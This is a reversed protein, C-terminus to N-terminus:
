NGLRGIELIKELAQELDAVIDATDEIGIAFRVLNDKIGISLREATSLEYYSMYAPQEILSEVGGLSPAIYPITMADIFRATTDAPEEGPIPAIEFSVVGGYGDMQERAIQHDPHSALGPYWVREVRPHNELFDAVTQASHNQQKVRLALTKLGREVLWAAHPDAVGGLMGQSQRLAHLLGADGVVVGAMVDNHGSLYKTGSHIVLNIGYALPRQNVPTAFTSDIITKVRKHQKAVAALRELDAVRLYPNTPSESIILRTNPQVAAELAAYDGMAVQTTEIGLRALFSNCFQRTKRYCDDTMVIHSGTPLISLIVNTVATMGTPFLIADDGGELAAIHKEVQRTTPNGYRGYEGRDGNGGWMKSEMYNCLDATDEFTYTATQIIPTTLSHFPHAARRHHNGHVSRTSAGSPRTAQTTVNSGNSSFITKSM